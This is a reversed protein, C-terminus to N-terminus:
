WQGVDEARPKKLCPRVKYSLSAKFEGNEQRLRGLAPILPMFQWAWSLPSIKIYTRWNEKPIQM